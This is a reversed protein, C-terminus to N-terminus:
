LFFLANALVFKLVAGDKIFPLVFSAKELLLWVVHFDCVLIRLIDDLM